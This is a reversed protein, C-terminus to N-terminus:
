PKTLRMLSIVGIASLVVQCIVLVWAARHSVDKMLVTLACATACLVPVVRMSLKRMLNPTSVDMKEMREEKPLEVGEKDAALPRDAAPSLAAEGFDLQRKSAYSVGITEASEALSMLPINLNKFILHTDGLASFFVLAGCVRAHEHSELSNAAELISEGTLCADSLVLIQEDRVPAQGAIIKSASKSWICGAIGSEEILRGMLMVMGMPRKEFLLFCLKSVGKQKRIERLITGFRAILEERREDGEPGSVLRELARVPDEGKLPIPPEAYRTYNSKKITPM